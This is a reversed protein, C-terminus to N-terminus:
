FKRSAIILIRILATTRNCWALLISKEKAWTKNTIQLFSIKTCVNHMSIIVYCVIIIYLMFSICFIPQQRVPKNKVSQKLWECVFIDAFLQEGLFYLVLLMELTSILLSSTVLFNIIVCKLSLNLEVRSVVM